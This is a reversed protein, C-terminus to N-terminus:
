SDRYVPRFHVKLGDAPAPFLVGTTYSLDQPLLTWTYNRLLHVTVLKLLMDIFPEGGCRHGRYPTGQDVTATAGHPCYSNPLRGRSRAASFREPDFVSPDDFTEPINMTAYLGGIAKMGKPVYYNNFVADKKARSVFTNALVPNVRRAEKTLMGVYDLQNLLAMSLPGTKCTALVEARAKQMIARHQGLALCVAALGLSIGTYAAFYLHLVENALVTDDLTGDADFAEILVTMMSNAFPKEVHEGRDRAEHYKKLAERHLVMSAHIAKLLRARCRRAKRYTSFPLPLPLAGLGDVYCRLTKELYPDNSGTVEGLLLANAMGTAMKEFETFWAFETRIQWRDLWRGIISNGNSDSLREFLAIYHDLVDSSLAEFVLAKRRTHVEGSLLPVAAGMLTETPDGNADVRDFIEPDQLFTIAEAGVLAVWTGGFWTEFIPGYKEYRDLFFSRNDRRFALLDLYRRFGRPGPPSPFERPNPAQDEM